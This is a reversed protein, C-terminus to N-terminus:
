QAAMVVTTPATTAGDPDVTALPAGDDGIPVVQAQTGDVRVRLFHV